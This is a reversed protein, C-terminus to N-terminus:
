KQGEKLINIYTTEFDSTLACKGDVIKFLPKNKISGLIINLNTETQKNQAEQFEVLSKSLKVIEATQSAQIKDREKIREGWDKDSNSYGWSYLSHAMLGCAVVIAVLGVVYKWYEKLLLILM